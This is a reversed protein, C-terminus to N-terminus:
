SGKQHREQHHAQGNHEYHDEEEESEDMLRALRKPKEEDVIEVEDVELDGYYRQWTREIELDKLTDM